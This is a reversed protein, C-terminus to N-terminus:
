RSGLELAGPDDELVGAIVDALPSALFPVSVQVAAGGRLSGLLEINM